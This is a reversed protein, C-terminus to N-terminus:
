DCPLSCRDDREGHRVVDGSDLRGHGGPTVEEADERSETTNEETEVRTVDGSYQGHVEELVLETVASPGRGVVRGEAIVAIVVKVLGPLLGQDGGNQRGSGEETCEKATNECVPDTTTGRDNSSTHHEGDTDDKLDGGGGDTKQHSSTQNGTNTNSEDGGDDDEVHRLNRGLSETTGDHGTVLEGDGDTDQEGGADVISGLVAEVSAGVANGNGDLEQPSQNKANTEEQERLRRTVPDLLVLEVARGFSEGSETALRHVGGVDLVFQVFQHGVVLVLQVVHPATPGVAEATSHRAAAVQATHKDTGGHLHHLLPSTDVEDEVVTGGEELLGTNRLGREDDTDDGSDDVDARCRDGEPGNLTETASRKEDITSNTHQDALEDDGNDTGSRRAGGGSTVNQHDEHADVDKEEGGSPARGSPDDDALDERKGDTSLTDGEGGGGVPEPVKDNAVDGRVHNVLVLAVEARLHEEDPTGSAGEADEEGVEENRLGLTQRELLDVLHHLLASGSLGGLPHRVRGKRLLDVRVLSTTGRSVV